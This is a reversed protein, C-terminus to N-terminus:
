AQLRTIDGTQASILVEIHLRRKEHIIFWLQDLNMKCKVLRLDVCRLPSASNVTKKQNDRPFFVAQSPKHREPNFSVELTSM